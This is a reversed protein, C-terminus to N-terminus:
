GCGRFKARWDPYAVRSDEAMELHDQEGLVVIEGRGFQSDSLM